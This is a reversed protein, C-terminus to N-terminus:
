SHVLPCHTSPTQQLVAHPDVQVDHRAARLPPPSSPVQPFTGAPVSGFFAQAGEAPKGNLQRPSPKQSPAPAHRPNAGAPVKQPAEPLGDHLELVTAPRTQLPLPPQPSVITLQPNYTQLSAPSPHRVVQTPSALQMAEARQPDVPVQSGSLFL